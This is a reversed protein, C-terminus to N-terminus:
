CHVRPKELFCGAKPTESEVVNKNENQCREIHYTLESTRVKKSASFLIWGCYGGHVSKAHHIVWGTYTFSGDESKDLLLM